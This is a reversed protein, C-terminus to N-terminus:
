KKDGKIKRRDASSQILDVAVLALASLGAVIQSTAEVAVGSALLYASAMSGLRRIIPKAIEVYM